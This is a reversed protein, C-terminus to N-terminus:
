RPVRVWSQMSVLGSEMVSRRSDGASWFTAAVERILLDSGTQTNSM